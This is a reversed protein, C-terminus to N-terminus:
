KVVYAALHPYARLIDRRENEYLNVMGPWKTYALIIAGLFERYTHYVMEIYAVPYYGDGDELLIPHAKKRADELDGALIASVCSGPDIGHVLYAKVASDINDEYMPLYGYKTEFDEKWTM